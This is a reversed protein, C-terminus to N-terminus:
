LSAFADVLAALAVRNSFELRTAALPQLRWIREDEEVFLPEAISVASTAGREHLEELLRLLLYTKFNEQFHAEYRCKAAILTFQYDGPVVYGLAVTADDSDVARVVILQEHRALWQVYETQVTYGSPRQGYAAAVFSEWAPQVEADWKLVDRPTAATVVRCDFESAFARYSARADDGQSRDAIPIVYQIDGQPNAVISLERLQGVIAEPLFNSQDPISEELDIQIRGGHLVSFPVVWDPGEVIVSAVDIGPSSTRHGCSECIRKLDFHRRVYLAENGQRADSGFMGRLKEVRTSNYTAHVQLM